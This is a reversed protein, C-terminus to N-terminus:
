RTVKAIETNCGMKEVLTNIIGVFSSEHQILIQNDLKDVLVSLAEITKRESTKLCIQGKSMKDKQKRRSFYSCFTYEIFWILVAILCGISSVVFGSFINQYGISWKREEKCNPLPRFQATHRRISSVTGTERMKNIVIDFVRIFTSNKKFPFARSHKNYRTPAAAIECPYNAWLSVSVDDTFMVNKRDKLVALEEEQTSHVMANENNELTEKWLRRVVSDTESETADSFYSESATGQFMMLQYDRRDLLDELSKIPHEFKQVTLTATLGADWVMYNLTGFMCVTFYLCKASALSGSELQRGHNVDAQGFSLGVISVGSGFNNAIRRVKSSVDKKYYSKRKDALEFVVFLLTCCVVAVFLVPVWYDISFVKTFTSWSFSQKPRQMYLGFESTGTPNSFSVINSRGLLVSFEIISMEAEGNKLQALIGKWTKTKPNYQAYTHSPEYVWEVTFNLENMLSKFLETKTGKLTLNGATLYSNETGSNDADFNQPKIVKLIPPDDFYNVRM